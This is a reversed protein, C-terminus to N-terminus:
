SGVSDVNRLLAAVLAFRSMLAFFLSKSKPFEVLRFKLLYRSETFKGKGCKVGSFSEGVLHSKSHPLKVFKQMNKLKLSELIQASFMSKGFGFFSHGFLNFKSFGLIKRTAYRRM